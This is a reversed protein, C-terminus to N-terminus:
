VNHMEESIMPLESGFHMRKYQRRIFRARAEIHILYAGLVISALVELLVPVNQMIM